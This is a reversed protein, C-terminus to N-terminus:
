RARPAVVFRSCFDVTVHTALSICVTKMFRLRLCTLAWRVVSDPRIGMRSVIDCDSIWINPTGFATLGSIWLPTIPSKSFAV